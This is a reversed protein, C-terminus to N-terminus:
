QNIFQGPDITMSEGDRYEEGIVAGEPPEDAYGLVSEPEVMRVEKESDSDDLSFGRTWRGHEVLIWQGVKYEENNEPGKSYVKGWRPRVGRTTGDDDQIIIGGQSVQDGFYMDSVLVRNGVARINESKIANINVTKAM